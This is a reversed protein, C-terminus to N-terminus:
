VHLEKKLLSIALNCRFEDFMAFHCLSHDIELKKALWSYAEKKSTFKKSNIAKEMLTHGQHRLKRTFLPAPYGMPQGTKQHASHTGCCLPFRICGYFKGYKSDRLILDAGCGSEPCARHLRYGSQVSKKSLKLLNSGHAALPIEKISPNNKDEYAIYIIESYEPM